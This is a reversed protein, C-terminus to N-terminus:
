DTIDDKQAAKKPDLSQFSKKYFVSFMTVNNITPIETLIM